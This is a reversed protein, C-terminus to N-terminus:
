GETERPWTATITAAAASTEELVETLLQEATEARLLRVQDLAALPAIGALQWSRAVPDEFLAVDPPWTAEEFESAVALTRRVVQEVRERLPDLDLTWALEPLDEVEARPYPEEPLWASVRIRRTGRAALLVLGGEAQLDTIEAVTGLSFRQEGGGVEQGREILVVGFEGSGARFIEALMVAYRPEFVRLQLPMHPLLVAGLPFM